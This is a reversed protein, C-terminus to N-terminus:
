FNKEFKCTDTTIIIPNRFVRPICNYICKPLCCFPLTWYVQGQPKTRFIRDYTILFDLQLSECFTLTARGMGGVIGDACISSGSTDFFYPGAALYVCLSNCFYFSRGLELDVGWMATQFRFRDAFFTDTLDFRERSEFASKDGVPIYGNMRFDVYPTFLEGGLGIQNFTHGLERRNDYFVNVGVMSGCSDLFARWGVGFNGAFNGDDVSQLQVDLFMYNALTPLPQVVMFGGGVFGNDYSRGDGGRGVFFPLYLQGCPVASCPDCLSTCEDICDYEPEYVYDAVLPTANWAAVAGLLILWKRM